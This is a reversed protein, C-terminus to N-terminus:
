IACHRETKVLNYLNTRLTSKTIRSSKRRRTTLATRRNNVLICAEDVFCYGHFCSTSSLMVDGLLVDFQGGAINVTLNTNVTGSTSPSSSVERPSFPLTTYRRFHLTNTHHKRNVRKGDQKELRQGLGRGIKSEIRRRIRRRVKKGVRKGVKKGVRKRVTKGFM